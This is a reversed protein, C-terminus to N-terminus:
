PLASKRARRGPLKLARFGDRGSLSPNIRTWTPRVNQVYAIEDGSVDIDQPEVAV